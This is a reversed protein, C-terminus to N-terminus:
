SIAPADESTPPKSAFYCLKLCNWYVSFYKVSAWWLSDLIRYNSHYVEGLVNGQCVCIYSLSHLYKPCFLVVGASFCHPSICPPLSPTTFVFLLPFDFAFFIHKTWSATKRGCINRLSLSLRELEAAIVGSLVKFQCFHLFCCVSQWM